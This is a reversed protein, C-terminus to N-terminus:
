DKALRDFYARLHDLVEPKAVKRLIAKWRRQIEEPEGHVYMIRLTECLRARVDPDVTSSELSELACILEDGMCDEVPGVGLMALSEWPVLDKRRVADLILKTKQACTLDCMSMWDDPQQEGYCRLFEEWTMLLEGPFAERWEGKLELAQFRLHKNDIVNPVYNRPWIFSHEPEVRKLEVIEGLPAEIMSHDLVEARVGKLTLYAEAPFPIELHYVKGDKANRMAVTDTWVLYMETGARHGWVPGGKFADFGVYYFTRLVKGAEKSDVFLWTDRRRGPHDHNSFHCVVEFGVDVFHDELIMLALPQQSAPGEMYLSDDLSIVGGSPQTPNVKPTGDSTPTGEIVKAGLLQRLIIIRECCGITPRHQTGSDL